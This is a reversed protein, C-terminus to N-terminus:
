AGCDCYTNKGNGGTLKGVVEKLNGTYFTTRGAKQRKKKTLVYVDREGNDYHSLGIQKVVYDCTKRGIIITDITGPFKAYRYDKNKKCSPISGCPRSCKHTIQKSNNEVLIGQHITVALDM